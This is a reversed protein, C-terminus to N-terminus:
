VYNTIYLEVTNISKNKLQYSSNSYNNHMDKVQLETNNLLFRRLHKNEKDKHRLVNNMGFPINNDILYQTTKYLQREEKLTWNKFGRNGDNYNGISLLYPPDLYVFDEETLYKYELQTFDDNRFQVNKSQITSIYTQLRKELKPNYSSRNTGHSSNYEQKNNFRLQYNFSYCMLLYLDLPHKFDSNNYDERFRNFSEKNQSSLGYERIRSWIYPKIDEYTNIYFYRQLRVLPTLLDNYVIVDAKVNIGVNFGGGFVDAFCKIHKPFRPIIKPLLKYKGGIYNFPAKIYM